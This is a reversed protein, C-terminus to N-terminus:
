RNQTMDADELSLQTYVPRMSIQTVRGTDRIPVVWRIQKIIGRLPTWSPGAECKVKDLVLVNM